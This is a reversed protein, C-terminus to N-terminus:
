KKRCFYIRENVDLGYKKQLDDTFNTVFSDETVEFGASALREKYDAGYIRKHDIHGYFKLRGENSIIADDQFTVARTYDIPVQHISWGGPKVVRRLEKMAKLDDPIHELVHSSIVVDFSNDEFEINTMDIKMHARPSNLDASIYNLDPLEDFRKYFCHEPAFHLVKLKATFFNTKEKLYLYMLRHRRGSGCSPCAHGNIFKTFSGGCVPCSVKSGKYVIKHFRYYGELVPEYIGQPIMRKIAYWHKSKTLM